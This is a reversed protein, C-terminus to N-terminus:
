RNNYKETYYESTEQWYDPKDCYIFDNSWFNNIESRAQNIFDYFTPMQYCVYFTEDGGSLCGYIYKGDESFYYPSFQISGLDTSSDIYEQPLKIASELLLCGTEIDYLSFVGGGSSTILWKGDNIIAADSLFMQYHAYDSNFSNLNSSSFYRRIQTQPDYVSHNGQAAIILIKNGKVIKASYMMDLGNGMTYAVYPTFQHYNGNEVYLLKAFPNNYDEGNSQSIYLESLHNTDILSWTQGDHTITGSLKHSHPYLSALTISDKYVKIPKPHLKKLKRRSYLKSNVVIENGSNLCIIENILSDREERTHYIYDEFNNLLDFVSISYDNTRYAIIPYDPSINYDKNLKYKSDISIKKVNNRCYAFMISQEDTDFSDFHYIKNHNNWYKDIDSRAYSYPKVHSIQNPIFDDSSNHEGLWANFENKIDFVDVLEKTYINWKYCKECGIGYLFGNETIIMRNYDVRDEGQLKHSEQTHLDYLYYEGCENYACWRSDKSFLSYAPTNDICKYGSRSLQSYANNLVDLAYEVVPIKVSDSPLVELIETMSSLLNGSNLSNQINKSKLKIQEYMVQFLAKSVRDKEITLNHNARKLDNNSVGLDRLANNLLINGRKISDNALGLEKNANEARNREINARDREAKIEINAKELLSNQNVIYGLIFLLFLIIIVSVVGIFFRRQRKEKEHRQWLSDFRLGLIRAIVKIAAAERGMENINIGLIEKEGTLQRLGEPFCEDGPNSANPTGGIIFPVVYEERGKDIFHQVEKSVWPSKASRPSCIVILYKSGNLGKEIEAKLNGGSLDSQDRFVPRIKTPLEPNEKRISTPLNYAELKKQLWKAWKEDERKYSIFAFYDFGKSIDNM